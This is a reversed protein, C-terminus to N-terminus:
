SKIELQLFAKMRRTIEKVNGRYEERIYKEEATGRNAITSYNFSIGRVKGSSVFSMQVWYKEPTIGSLYELFTRLHTEIEDPTDSFDLKAESPAPIPNM